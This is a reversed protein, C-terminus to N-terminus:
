GRLEVSADLKMMVEAARMLFAAKATTTEWKGVNNRSCLECVSATETVRQPTAYLLRCVVAM